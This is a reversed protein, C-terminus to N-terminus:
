QVSPLANEEIRSYLDVLKQETHIWGNIPAAQILAVASLRSKSWHSGQWKDTFGFLGEANIRAEWAALDAAEKAPIIEKMRDKTLHAWSVHEEKWWDRYWPDRSLISEATDLERRGNDIRDLWVEATTSGFYDHLSEMCLAASVAYPTFTKNWRQNCNKIAAVPVSAVVGRLDALGITESLASIFEARKKVDNWGSSFEERYAVFDTMHMQKVGFKSKVAVWLEDFKEFQDVTAAYGLMTCFHASQSDDWYAQLDYSRMIAM